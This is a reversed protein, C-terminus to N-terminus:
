EFIRVESQCNLGSNYKDYLKGYAKLKFYYTNNSLYNIAFSEDEINFKIGKNKMHEVQGIVDLKQKREVTKLDGRPIYYWLEVRKEVSTIKLFKGQLDTNM